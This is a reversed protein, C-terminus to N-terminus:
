FGKKCFWRSRLNRQCFFISQAFKLDYLLHVLPSHVPWNSPSRGIRPVELINNGTNTMHKVEVARVHDWGPGCLSLLHLFDNGKKKLTPTFVLYNIMCKISQKKLEKKEELKTWKWCWWKELLDDESINLFINAEFQSQISLNWELFQNHEQELRM